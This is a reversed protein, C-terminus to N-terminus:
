QKSSWVKNGRGIKADEARLIMCMNKDLEIEGSALIQCGSSAFGVCNANFFAIFQQRAKRSMRDILVKVRYGDDRIRTFDDAALKDIVNRATGGITVQYGFKPFDFAYNSLRIRKSESAVPSVFFLVSVMALCVIM